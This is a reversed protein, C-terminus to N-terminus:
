NRNRCDKEGDLMSKFVESFKLNGKYLSYKRIAFQLMLWFSFRRSMQGFMAGKSFFFEKDYGKFWTSQREDTVKGIIEPVYYIRLGADLCNWLWINEEGSTYVSGAGFLENFRINKSNVSERKFTIGCSLMKMSKLYGIKGGRSPFAKTGNIKFCIIDANPYKEYAKEIVSSYDVDYVVDDDAIICVEGQSKEIALNRSRSLGVEDSSIIRIKSNNFELTEEGNIGCQNVALADTKLGMKNLFDPSKRNITAILVELKM